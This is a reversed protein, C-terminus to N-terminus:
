KTQPVITRQPKTEASVNAAESDPPRCVDVRRLEARGGDRLMMGLATNRWEQMTIHSEIFNLIWIGRSESRRAKLLLDSQGYMGPRKAHFDLNVTIVWQCRNNKPFDERSLPKPCNVKVKNSFLMGTFFIFESKILDVFQIISNSFSCNGTNNDKLSSCRTPTAAPFFLIVSVIIFM